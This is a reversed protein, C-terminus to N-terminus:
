GEPGGGSWVDLIPVPKAAAREPYYELARMM